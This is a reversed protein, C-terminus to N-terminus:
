KLINGMIFTVFMSLCGFILTRIIPKKSKTNAIKSSIYGFLGLTLISTLFLILTVHYSFFIISIIIPIIAGFSFSLASAFSAQLPNSTTMDTIGLEDRLHADLANHNMMQKSVELALEENLGRLMYINKLEHLEHDWDQEIEKKEKNINEHEVDKQSSVSVYEGTAMAFAGSLLGALGILFVSNLSVPTQIVGIMLSSTSLLGDNAGLMSARLWSSNEMTHKEYCIM